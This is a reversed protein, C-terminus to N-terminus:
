WINQASKITFEKALEQASRIYKNRYVGSNENLYNKHFLCYANASPNWMLSWNDDVWVSSKSEEVEKLLMECIGIKSQSANKLTEYDYNVHIYTNCGELFEGMCDVRIKELHNLKSELNEANISIDKITVTISTNCVAYKSTKVSVQNRKYGLGKIIEKVKITTENM